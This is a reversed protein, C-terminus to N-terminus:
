VFVEVDHGGLKGPVSEFDWPRVRMECIEVAEKEEVRVLPPNIYSM